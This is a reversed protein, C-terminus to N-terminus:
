LLVLRGLVNCWEVKTVVSDNQTDEDTRSEQPIDQKAARIVNDQLNNGSLEYEERRVEVEINTKTKCWYRATKNLRPKHRQLIPLRSM